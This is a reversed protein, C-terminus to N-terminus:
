NWHVHWQAALRPRWRLILLVQINSQNISQNSLVWILPWITEQILVLVNYHHEYYSRTSIIEGEFPPSSGDFSSSIINLDEIYDMRSDLPHTVPFSLPAPSEKTFYTIFMIVMSTGTASPSIASHLTLDTNLRFDSCRIHFRFYM